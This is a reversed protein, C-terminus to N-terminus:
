MCAEPKFVGVWCWFTKVYIMSAVFVALMAVCIVYSIREKTRRTMDRWGQEGSRRFLLIPMADQLPVLTLVHEVSQM